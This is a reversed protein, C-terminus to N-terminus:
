LKNSKNDQIYTTEDNQLMDNIQNNRENITNIYNNLNNIIDNAKLGKVNLLFSKTYITGNFNDSINYFKFKSDNTHFNNDTNSNYKVKIKDNLFSIEVPHEKVKDSYNNFLSQLQEQLCKAENLNNFKNIESYDKNIIQEINISTLEFDKNNNILTQLEHLNNNIIFNHINEKNFNNYYINEYINYMDKYSSSTYKNDELKLGYKIFFQFINPNINEQKLINELQKKTEESNPDVKYHKFFGSGQDVKYFNLLEEKSLSISDKPHIDKNLIFSLEINRTKLNEELAADSSNAHLANNTDHYLINYGLSKLVIRTAEKKTFHEDQDYTIINYNKINEDTLEKYLKNPVLIIAKNSLKTSNQTWTDGPNISSQIEKEHIKFPEIIVFPCNDWNGFGHSDVTDNLIYHVTRRTSYNPFSKTVGKYTLEITETITNERDIKNGDYGSLITHEKPFFATSHVLALQDTDEMDKLKIESKYNKNVQLVGNNNVTFPTTDPLSTIPENELIGFEILEKKEINIEKKIKELQNKLNIQTKIEKEIRSINQEYDKQNTIYTKRHFIKNTLKNNQKQKKQEELLEEQLQEISKTHSIITNLETYNKKLSELLNNKKKEQNKLEDFELIM